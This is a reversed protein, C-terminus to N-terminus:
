LARGNGIQSEVVNDGHLPQPQAPEAGSASREVAQVIIEAVARARDDFAHGQTIKLACM